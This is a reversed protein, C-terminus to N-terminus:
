VRVRMGRDSIGLNCETEESNCIEWEAAFLWARSLLRRGAEGKM